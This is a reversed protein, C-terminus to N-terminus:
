IISPQAAKSQGNKRKQEILSNLLTAMAPTVEAAQAPTLDSFKAVGEPLFQVALDESEAGADLLKRALDVAITRSDDSSQPQQQTNHPADVTSRTRRQQLPAASNDNGDGLDQTFLESVLPLKRTAAVGARKCAMKLVTNEIDALDPNAVRGLQQSEIAVDGDLFKAGCGGKKGYCVWGTPQGTNRFDKGKIIAAAKCHPCVREGQRYAYKSERTSCMGDGTAIQAGAANFLVAEAYVTFHGDDTRELTTKVPGPIAKFLGNILFAGDQTLVPKDGAKFSYYHHDVKMEGKVYEVLIDRMEKQKAIEMRLDDPSMDTQIALAGANTHALAQSNQQEDDKIEEVDIYNQESM